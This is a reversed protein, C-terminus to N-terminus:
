PAGTVAMPGWTEVVRGDSLTFRITDASGHRSVARCGQDSYAACPDACGTLFVVAAVATLVALLSFYGTWFKRAPTMKRM